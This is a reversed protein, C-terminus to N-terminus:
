PVCTDLTPASEVQQPSTDRYKVRYCYHTGDPASVFWERAAVGILAPNQWGSNAAPGNTREFYYEVGDGEFDEAETARMYHGGAVARPQGSCCTGAPDPDWQAPDGVNGGVPYPAQNILPPEDDTTASAETSWVSENQVSDRVRFRYTYTTSQVLGTDEYTSSQQWSSDHGGTTTCEFYYEVPTSGEADTATQATMSISIDGTSYPEQLWAVPGPAQADVGATTSEKTSWGSVNRYPSKDRTRVWYTYELGPTLDNDTYTPSSQWTSDLGGPNGSTEDFYYEVSWGWGDYATEAKMTISTLSNSYPVQEWESPDPQPGLNDWALWCAAFNLFEEFEVVYDGYTFGPCWSPESDCRDYWYSAIAAFDELDIIGNRVVDSRSCEDELGPEILIQLPHHYGMDVTGEDPEEDTRTTYTDLDIVGASLSGADVCPSDVTQGAATQSLFYDGIFLPDDEINNSELEWILNSAQDIWIDSEGGDIDSYKIEVTSPQPTYGNGSGIAIQAGQTIDGTATNGTNGWFISDIVLANSFHSCFLGGGEGATTNDAITSNSIVPEAHWNSSIGGGDEDSSNHTVLCNHLAPAFFIDEDSGGYYIGGGSGSAYNNTFVSDVVSIISSFSSYGGGHGPVTVTIPWPNCPDSVNAPDFQATNGTFTSGTVSGVTSVTFLGAGHYATNSVFDCDVIKINSRGTYLGGGECAENRVFRCRTFKPACGDETAVAGGYSVYYDDGVGLFAFDDEGEVPGEGEEGEYTAGITNPDAVNDRFVCDEFEPNSGKAAYVSGGATEINLNRDPFPWVINLPGVGGIGSLGGSSENDEFICASFKPSSDYECYVAGGYGSFEWYDEYSDRLDIASTLYDAYWDAWSGWQSTDFWESWTEWDYNNYGYALWVEYKDGYTWGDWWYWFFQDETSDTWEWGGGRGGYGDPDDNGAGGNGGTGGAAYCDAFLCDEFTPNSSFACYVAGGYARGPWGGDGGSPHEECGDNAPNGDGGTVSLNQFTCKQVTPSSEYMSIAGGYVSTGYGGDLACGEGQILTGGTWNSDRFVCNRITPSSRYLNMTGIRVTIGEITANPGVDYLYFHYGSFVVADPNEPDETTLTIDKGNIRIDNLWGWGYTAPTYEGTQIIIFDGDVADDVAEQVSTYHDPLDGGVTGVFLTRPQEFMVGITKDSVMIVVNSTEKSDDNITGGSWSAIRYGEDPYAELTIRTGFPIDTIIVSEELTAGVPEDNYWVVATGHGSPVTVELDYMPIEAADGYHYGIDVTGTDLAGAADTTYIDMGLSEADTSGKDVAGSTSQNLYYDGLPGEAFVPNGDINDHNGAVSNIQTDGTYSQGADADYFDGNPNNWFLSFKVFADEDVDTKEEYIAHKDCRVFTSDSIQPQCTWDSFVGGGYDGASNGEFTCNAIEPKAYIRCSIGGGGVTAENGTILCNKVKQTIIESGGYFSIGGGYSYTGDAKNNVITCNEITAITNLCGLGGGLGQGTGTSYTTNMTGTAHNESILGGSFIVTGDLLFLGGGSQAQNGAFYCDTLIADFDRLYVAGGLAADNGGFSCTEFDLMLTTNAIPDSPDPPRYAEVAGGHGEAKNGGFSCNKVIAGTKLNVAGGDGHSYNTAFECGEINVECNVGADVAGGPAPYFGTYGYYTTQEYPYFYYGYLGSSTIDPIPPMSQNNTFRCGYIDLVNDRDCFVAGGLNDTFTCNGLTVVNNPESYLAGGRTYTPLEVYGYVGGLGFTPDYALSIGYAENEEFICNIFNPESDHGYYAAGGATAGSTTVSGLTGNGVPPDLATGPGRIGGQGTTASTAINNSFTCDVVAPSSGGDSFIAGGFGEGSASGGNGGRSEDGGADTAKASGNGGRGGGGGRAANNSLVCNIIAPSSGDLCAIAGGYGNGYGDGAHGGWQGNEPDMGSFVFYGNNGDGGQGGTASCNTIICNEFTPSSGNECLIAGGYGDGTADTGLNASRIVDPDTPDAEPDIIYGQLAGSQGIAGAMFGNRITIGWIKTDPGEGSHFHFARKPVLRSGGVDIVTQAITEPDEPYESMIVIGRGELDIGDPNSITYPTDQRQLIIKDGNGAAAVAEEITAYEDPVSLIRSIDPEFEVIITRNGNMTVTATGAGWLPSVDAGIWVRVRYGENPDATLYVVSEPPYNDNYPVSSSDATVTGPGDIVINLTYWYQEFEATVVRDRDMTVTNTLATSGDDDTGSWKVRYGDPPTPSISLSVVTYQNYYVGTPHNPDIDGGITSILQTTLKYQLVTFPKHHYGMDVIGADLGSDTRTTYIDLGLNGALDSGADVCNSDVLQGAAIQSLFYDGIFLPDDEINRTAPDWKFTGPDFNYRAQGNLRCGDSVWVPIPPVWKLGSTSSGLAAGVNIRAKTIDVKTDTVDDGTDVLMERVEGPTLYRGTKVLAAGQLSAVAGAAFPCASSTGNFGPFYDGADYGDAGVIDTTYVPDAPALIDLICATNSYETVADTTDYVAGVSIVNSMAAPWSIGEGAFGDNGSAALITIGAAVANEAAITHAPSFADAEDTSSFPVNPIGWSNSMVMIPNEPDDNRHTICWDWAALDSDTPWLDEDTSVKLAYIKANPAVGGIYDGVTGLDGAAIGACATGHAVFAPGGPIPDADNDATDYGGIVKNNPFGGGGLRPHNYDVGSDVIAIAIGTGDFVRRTRLANALPIAQALMRQVYRVPEIHAVSPNNLLKNLGEITVEGSFGAQNEFRHRLTFEAQMFSSLVVDQRAVIETRLVDVSESWNWDTTQRMAVPEALSVIVKVTEAGADFQDYITQGEVLIGSDVITGNSNSNDCFPRDRPPRSKVGGTFAPAQYPPGVDSYTVNAKSLYADVTTDNVDIWFGDVALQAGYESDNAWLISDILDVESGYSVYLGGGYSNPDTAKNDSITCNNIRAEGFLNLAIGGGSVGTINDTILCNKLESTAAINWRTLTRPEGGLYVGGGSVGAFNETVVTDSIFGATTFCYLGGGIGVSEVLPEPGDPEEPACPDEPEEPAATVSAINGRITCGSIDVLGHTSLLGGGVYSSNEIFDSDTIEVASSKSYIGGGIPASNNTIQCDTFTAMAPVEQSSFTYSYVDQGEFTGSITYGYSHINGDLCIGGGYGTYATGGWEELEPPDEPDRENGLLGEGYGYTTENNRVICDTFTTDSGGACFAGSGYSPIKYNKKPQSQYNSPVQVGGVGSVSGDAFNDEFLCDIFDPESLAECYVGAGRATRTSPHPQTPDYSTLGGYGGWGGLNGGDGGDGGYAGYAQNNRIICNKFTPMNGANIYIGAGEAMGALGGRGGESVDAGGEAGNGGDGAVVTCDEIISDEILPESMHVYWRQEAPDYEYQTGIFIGAGVASGGDGGYGGLPIDDDGAQGDGGDGGRLDFGRVTCNAVTHNGFISIGCSPYYAQYHTGVGTPGDQFLVPLGGPYFISGPQGPTGAINDQIDDGDWGDAGRIWTSTQIILGNLVCTGQGTGILHFGGEVEGSCDIITAKTPDDRELPFEATITLNKGWVMYGTGPYTGPEIVITDGDRTADIADQIENYAFDKPVNWTSPFIEEFYVYVHAVGDSGINETAMTFSNTTSYSPEIDTGFWEYVRYGAEPNATLQVMTGPSASIEGRYPPVKPDVTGSIDVPPYVYTDQASYDMTGNGVVHMILTYTISPTFPYHYGFDTPPYDYDSVIKTTVDPTLGYTATLGEEGRFIDETDDADVAPSDVLQFPIQSLYFDGYGPKSVFMPSQFQNDDEWWSLAADPDVGSVDVGPIHYIICYTIEPASENAVIGDLTEGLTSEPDVTNSQNYAVTSLIIICDSAAELYFGGGPGSSENYTVLCNVFDAVSGICYVGGGYGFSTLGLPAKGAENYSIETSMIVPTANLCYIGGGDGPQMEGAKNNIIKCSELTARDAEEDDISDVIQAAFTAMARAVMAEVVDEPDPQACPDSFDLAGELEAATAEFEDAIDQYTTDDEELGEFYVAGGGFSASNNQIICNRILPRSIGGIAIAGGYDAYGNIITFGDVVAGNNETNNEIDLFEFGRHPESPSGGCDITCGEPGFESRVTILKGGFNLDRNGDGSYTGYGVVVIDGPTEPLDVIPLPTACPDGVIIYPGYIGTVADDIAAQITPYTGKPGAAWDPEGDPTPAYLCISAPLVSKRRFSVTVTPGYPYDNYPGNIAITNTSSTSSDDDTGNWSGVEYGSAPHAILDVTTGNMVFQPVNPDLWGNALGDPGPTVQPYLRYWPKQEFEVYVTTDDHLVTTYTDGASDNYPDTPWPPPSQSWSGPKVIYGYDPYATLVVESHVDARRMRPRVTGNGGIVIAELFKSNAIFEVTVHKAEDMTVYNYVNPDGGDEILDDDDTGTWAEVQYGDDPEATLKVIDWEYQLGSAPFLEGSGGVVETTLLYDNRDEFEVTVTKAQTMTVINQTRGLPYDVNAPFLGDNDTGGTWESVKYGADPTATLAVEAFQIYLAGPLDHQPSISGNGGVIDTQLLYDVVAGSDPYHYGIDVAGTDQVNDTRTTHTSASGFIDFASGSGADLCPSDNLQEASTQSLYFSGLEEGLYGLEAKLPVSAPGARFLPEGDINNSAYGDPIGNIGSADTYVTDTDADYYGGNFNDYFLCNTVTVDSTLTGAYEHIAHNFNMEFVCNVVQPSSDWSSFIAGGDYGAYNFSFTCNTIVPSADECDIAGGYATWAYYIGNDYFLCNTIKPSAGYCEIAGGYYNATNETFICDRITPASDSCEIAGGFNGVGRRITFGEVVSSESEGSRFFFAQDANQCDIICNAPGNESHVTISKGHFDMGRNGVGTWTGDAVLVEDGNVAVNIAGQITTYDGPVLITAAIASGTLGFLIVCVAFVKRTMIVEECPLIVKSVMSNGHLLGAM